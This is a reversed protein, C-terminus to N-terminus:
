CFIVSNVLKEDDFDFINETLFLLVYCGVELGDTKGYIVISKWVM